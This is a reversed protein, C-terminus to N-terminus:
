HHFHAMEKVPHCAPLQHFNDNDNIDAISIPPLNIRFWFALATLM